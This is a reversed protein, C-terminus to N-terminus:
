MAVDLAVFPMSGSASLAGVVHQCSCGRRQGGRSPGINESMKSRVRYVKRLSFALPTTRREPAGTRRLRARPNCRLTDCRPQHAGRCPAAPVFSMVIPHQRMSTLVVNLLAGFGDNRM